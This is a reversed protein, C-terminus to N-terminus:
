LLEIDRAVVTLIFTNRVNDGLVVPKMRQATKRGEFSLANSRGKKEGRKVIKGARCKAIQSHILM